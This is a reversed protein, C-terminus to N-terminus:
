EYSSLESTIVQVFSLQFFSAKMSKVNKRIFNDDINIVTIIYEIKLMSVHEIVFYM